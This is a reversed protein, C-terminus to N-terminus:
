QVPLRISQGKEDVAVYVIRATAVNLSQLDRINRQVWVDVDVTLSSRGQEVLEAYFTVLDGVYLPLMFNMQKVAATVIPGKARIIAPISGAIDVQAMLWGGFITGGPNSDKVAAYTKLVIEKDPLPM